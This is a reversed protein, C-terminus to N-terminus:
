MEYTPCTSRVFIYYQAGGAYTGANHTIRLRNSTDGNVTNGTVVREFSWSGANATSNELITDASLTLYSDMYFIKDVATRYATTWHTMAAEVHVVHSGGCTYIDHSFTTNLTTSGGIALEHMGSGVTPVVGTCSWAGASSNWSAVQGNTCSLEDLTDADTTTTCTWTSGTADWAAVQDDACSLAALTDADATTTCTWASGTADWAAVQDDACTLTQLTDRVTGDSAIAVVGGVSVESAVVPGGAVSHAVVAFPVSNLRQRTALEGTSDIEFGLEIDDDDLVTSDIASSNGLVTSYYGDSLLLTHTETWIQASESLDWLRFQIDHQGQLPTGNADLLRGQQAVTTPTASALAPILALAILAVTRM